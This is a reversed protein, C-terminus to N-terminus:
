SVKTLPAAVPVNLGGVQVMNPMNPRPYDLLYDKRYLWLDTRSAVSQLTEKEGVYKSALEDYLSSADWRSLVPLFTYLLVNQLRQTFSMDDTFDTFLSPVYSPPLPVGTSQEDLCYPDVRMLAIHPVRFHASLIAGCPFLPDSIVVSYQSARLRVLLGSDGLLIACYNRFEGFSAVLIERQEYPSLERAVSLVDDQAKLRAETGQDQFAEFQLDPWETRRKEVIDESVVVTVIHGKDLLACGVKALATWHSKGRPPPVLLVKESVCSHMSIFCSFVLLLVASCRLKPAIEM